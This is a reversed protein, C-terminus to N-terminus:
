AFITVAVTARFITPMIPIKKKNMEEVRLKVKIGLLLLNVRLDINM